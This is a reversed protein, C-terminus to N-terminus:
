YPIGVGPFSRRINNPSRSNNQAPMSRIDRQANSLQSDTFELENFSFAMPKQLEMDFQTGPNLVLDKGRGLLVTAIGVAAGAGAGIGAGKGYRGNGSIVGGISGLAAGTLTDNTVTRVDDGKSGGASVSESKKNFTEDGSGHIGRFSATLERKIGNPLLIDDFRVAIRGKGKIKGPRVVETVTGRITSGKPIVLRQQIWIPYTTDAYFKDGVQSSKTNLYATLIIPIVTGTPVNIEFNQIEQPQDQAGVSLPVASILYLALITHRSKIQM